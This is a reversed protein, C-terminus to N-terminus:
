PIDCTIGEAAEDRILCWWARMGGRRHGEGYCHPGLVQM